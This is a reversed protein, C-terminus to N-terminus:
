KYRVERLEVGWVCLCVVGAVWFHGEEVLDNLSDGVLALALLLLLTLLVASTLLLVLALLLAAIATALLVSALLLAAWWLWWVWPACLPIALAPDEDVLLVSLSGM